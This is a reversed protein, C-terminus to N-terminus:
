ATQARDFAAERNNESCKRYRSLRNTSKGPVNSHQWEKLELIDHKQSLRWVHLSTDDRSLISYMKNEVDSYLKVHTIWASRHQPLTQIMVGTSLKWVKVTSDASGTVLVDLRTDYDVSFIAAVHGVYTKLQEGTEIDWLTATTNFSATVLSTEDFKIDSVTQHTRLVRICDGLACDWIRVTFDDSGIIHFLPIFFRKVSSNM